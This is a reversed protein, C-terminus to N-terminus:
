QCLMQWGPAMPASFGGYAGNQQAYIPYQSEWPIALTFKEGRYIIWNGMLGTLQPEGSQSLAGSLSFSHSESQVAGNYVYAYQYAYIYFYESSCGGGSCVQLNGSCSKSMSGSGSSPQPPYPQPPVPYSPYPPYQPTNQPYSSAAAESVDFTCYAAGGPLSSSTESDTDDSVLVFVGTTDDYGVPRNYADYFTFRVKGSFSYSGSVNHVTGTARGDKIECTTYGQQQPYRAKTEAPATKKAKIDTTTGAASQKIADARLDTLGGSRAAEMEGASVVAAVALLFTTLIASKM